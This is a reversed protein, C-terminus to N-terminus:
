KRPEVTAPAPLKYKALIQKQFDPHTRGFETLKSFAAEVAVNDQKFIRVAEDARPKAALYDMSARRAQLGLYATVTFSMIVLAGFLLNLQRRLDEGTEFTDASGPANQPNMESENM